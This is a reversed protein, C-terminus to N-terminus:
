LARVHFGWDLMACRLGLEGKLYAWIEPNARLAALVEHLLRPREIALRQRWDPGWCLGNVVPATTKLLLTSSKPGVWRLHHKHLIMNIQALLTNKPLEPAPSATNTPEM